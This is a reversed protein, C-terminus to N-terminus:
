FARFRRSISEIWKPSCGTFGFLRLVPCVLEFVVTHWDVDLQSISWKGETTRRNAKAILNPPLQFQVIQDFAGLQRNELGVWTCKFHVTRASNFNRALLRAHTVIETVERAISNLCLWTGPNRGNHDCIDKRDELYPRILTAYGDPSVRWYDPLGTFKNRSTDGLLNAELVEGGTGDQNRPHFAPQIETGHFQYFMSWGSQVFDRVGSNVNQLVDSLSDVSIADGNETSVLYSLQYCNDRIPITWPHTNSQEFRRVLSGYRERGNSHWRDLRDSAENTQSMDPRVLVLFDRLLSERDSLVCRRILPSWEEPDLIEASEPGPKRIYYTASRIGIPKHNKGSPGDRKTVIPVGQHSPIRIVIFEQGFSNEIAQVECQFSPTLYRKIIASFSDQNYERISSSTNAFPRLKDDFGFVIYGGGHNALAALHRAIKARTVPDKLDIWSKVEIGLTERPNDILDRLEHEM